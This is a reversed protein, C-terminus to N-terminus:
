GQVPDPALTGGDGIKAAIAANIPAELGKARSDIVDKLMPGWPAPVQMVADDMLSQIVDEGAQVFAEIKKKSGESVQM